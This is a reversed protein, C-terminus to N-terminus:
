ADLTNALVADDDAPIAYKAHHALGVRAVFLPLPLTLNKFM